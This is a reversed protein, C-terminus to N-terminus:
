RLVLAELEGAPTTHRTFLPSCPTNALWKSLTMLDTPDFPLSDARANEAMFTFENMIGLVSRSATPALRAERMHALEDTIFAPPVDHAVLVQRLHDPFRRLLTAAPALPMVVPLLTAENVFLALQPKWFWVTAYWEGLRATPADGPQLTVPGLRDRLKKTARVVFM